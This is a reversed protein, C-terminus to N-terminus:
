AIDFAPPWIPRGVIHQGTAIADLYQRVAANESLIKIMAVDWGQIDPPALPLSLRSQSAPHLPLTVSPNSKLLHSVIARTNEPSNALFMRPSELKGRTYGVIQGNILYVTEPFTPNPSLWANLNQEPRLAFDVNQEDYLWLQYLSEVDDPQLSRTEITPTTVILHERNLTVTSSGYVKTQYGFRPYYASHGLLFAVSYGKSKAIRHGADMLAGGVGQRQFDPHIGIPALCVGEVPAHMFTMIYPMFLAHGIIQGGQTAILSLDVDYAQRQRLLSVITAEESRYGFARIHVDTIASYDSPKESRINIM